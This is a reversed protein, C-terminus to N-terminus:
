KGAPCSGDEAPKALYAEMEEPACILLQDGVHTQSSYITHPPLELISSSKLLFPAIRFPNLHEVLHIVRDSADLYILDMPTVLGVTHIGHSPVVWLGEGSKLRFQGVLGRLRAMPTDARRINLAVFSEGTKNFVCYTRKMQGAM